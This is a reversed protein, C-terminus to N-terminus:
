SSAQSFLSSYYTSWFYYSEHKIPQLLFLFIKKFTFFFWFEWFILHCSGLCWSPFKWPLPWYVPWSAQLCSQTSVCHSLLSILCKTILVTVYMDPVKSPRSSVLFALISKWENLFKHETSFALDISLRLISLTKLFVTPVGVSFLVKQPSQILLLYLWFLLIPLLSVLTMFLFLVLFVICFRNTVNTKRWSCLYM